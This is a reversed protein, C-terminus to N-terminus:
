CLYVRVHFYPIKKGLHGTICGDLHLANKINLRHVYPLFNIFCKFVLLTRAADSVLCLQLRETHPM